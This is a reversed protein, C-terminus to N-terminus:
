VRFQTGKSKGKSSHESRWSTSTVNLTMFLIEIMKVRAISSMLDLYLEALKMVASTWTVYTQTPINPALCLPWIAFYCGATELVSNINKISVTMRLYLYCCLYQYLCNFMLIKM